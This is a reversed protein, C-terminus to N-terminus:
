GEEAKKKIAKNADRILDAVGNLCAPDNDCFSLEVEVQRVIGELIDKQKVYSKAEDNMVVWVSVNNAGGVGLTAFLAEYQGFLFTLVAVVATLIPLILRLSILLRRRGLTTDIADKLLKLAKEIGQRSVM